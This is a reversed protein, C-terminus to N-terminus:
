LRCEKGVRREESRAMTGLDWVGPSAYDHSFTAPTAPGGNKSITGTGPVYTFGGAPLDTVITSLSAGATALNTVTIQFLVSDGPHKDGGAFNEKTIQLIPTLSHNGVSCTVDQGPNVIM